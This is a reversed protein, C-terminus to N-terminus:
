GVRMVLAQGAWTELEDAYDLEDIYGRLDGFHGKAIDFNKAFKEIEGALGSNYIDPHEESMWNSDLTDDLVTNAMLPPVKQYYIMEISKGGEQCPHIQLQNAIVTYYMKGDNAQQSKVNMQEPSLYHFQAITHPTGPIKSNLQIDRMGRYDGPLCYYAQDTRTPAYGRVTQNRTKLLRNMRAEVLRLFNDMNKEVEVDERDAYARALDVIELYNM